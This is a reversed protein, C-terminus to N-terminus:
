SIPLRMEHTMCSLLLVITASDGELILYEAHLIRMVYAIEAWTDHLKATLITPGIFYSEGAVVLGLEHGRIVFSTGGLRDKISGNFNVKM